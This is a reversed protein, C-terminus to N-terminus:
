PYRYRRDQPSFLELLCDSCTAIDPSILASREAGVSSERISFEKYGQPSMGDQASIRDIHAPPPALRPLDKLFEDLVIKEAEAEIEVGEPTNLIWGKIGREEALRFVFPRFGVGQVIGQIRIRYRAIMREDGRDENEMEENEM